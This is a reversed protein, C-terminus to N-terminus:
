KGDEGIRRLLDELIQMKHFHEMRRDRLTPKTFYWDWWSHEQDYMLKILAIIEEKNM